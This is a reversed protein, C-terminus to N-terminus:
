SSSLSKGIVKAPKDLLDCLQGSATTEALRLVRGARGLGFDAQAVFQRALIQRCDDLTSGTIRHDEEDVPDCCASGSGHGAM